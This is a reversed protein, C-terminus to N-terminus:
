LTEVILINLQIQSWPISVYIQGWVMEIPTKVRSFSDKFRVPPVKYRGKVRRLVILCNLPFFFSHALKEMSYCRNWWKWMCDIQLEAMFVTAYVVMASPKHTQRSFWKRYIPKINSRYRFYELKECGNRNLLIQTECCKVECEESLTFFLVSVFIYEASRLM